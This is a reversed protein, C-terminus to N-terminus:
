LVEKTRLIEECDELFEEEKYRDWKEKYQILDKIILTADELMSVLREIYEADNM